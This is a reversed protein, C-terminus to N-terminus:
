QHYATAICCVIIYLSCRHYDKEATTIKENAESANVGNDCSCFGALVAEFHDGSLFSENFVTM